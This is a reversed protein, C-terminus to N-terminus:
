YIEELEYGRDLTWGRVRSIEQIRRGSSTRAIWIVINVAEAILKPQPPVHAEEILQELRTLAALCNNAHITSIGGPHGTNWAKLLTLAEAGRVEGVIIRDPRLRMTTRLLKALDIRENTRLEVRNAAACQLEVTDELIVIRESSGAENAVVHLLTNAFTTKGSGTSGVILINERKGIATRLMEPREPDLAGSNVYDELTFLRIARKRIAFTPNATVPPLAGGIRSGEFPLEGELIPHEANVVTGLMMAVTGLLSEAQASEIREGTDHMGAGLVDLWLRGDPNLMIEVVNPDALAALINPGLERRLKEELRARRRDAVSPADGM